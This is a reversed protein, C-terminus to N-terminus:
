KTKEEHDLEKDILDQTNGGWFLLPQLLKWAPRWGYHKSLVDAPNTESRIHYFGMIKAAIAERVRHFSLACHRKHLKAFPMTSSNVVSENDGFMYAKKRIPIGLYRLTNRLDISREVCTRAAVFESGYTATEVTAQKKSLWDIPTKNVLDLIGTVSRGTLMCHFLNADVYHTITVWRGLAEPTDEPIIEDVKGYVTYGWDFDQDPIASYDPEDTRVRLAAHRMKSLYGYIRKIREL